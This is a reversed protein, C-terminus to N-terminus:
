IALPLHEPLDALERRSGRVHVVRKQLDIREVLAASLVPRRPHLRGVRVVLFDPATEDPPFLPTEVVGVEGDAAEVSFGSSLALLTELGQDAAM